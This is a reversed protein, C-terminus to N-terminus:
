SNKMGLVSVIVNTADGCTRFSIYSSTVNTPGISNSSSQGMSTSLISPMLVQDFIIPFTYTVETNGKVAVFTKTQILLNGFIMVLTGDQLSSMSVGLKSQIEEWGYTDAAYTCFYRRDNTIDQYEQGVKGVTATTPAGNGKIIGYVDNGNVQANNVTLTHTDKKYINDDGFQVSNAINNTGQGIQTSNDAETRGNNGLVQTNIGNSSTYHGILTSQAYDKTGDENERDGPGEARSGYVINGTGNGKANPGIVIDFKDNTTSVAGGAYYNSNEDVGNGLGAIDGDVLLTGSKSPFSVNVQTKSAGQGKEIVIEDAGIKTVQDDTTSTFQAISDNLHVDNNHESVANFDTEANFNNKDTFINAENLYAVQEGLDNISKNLKTFIEDIASQVENSDIKSTANSYTIGSASASIAVSVTEGSTLTFVLSHTDDDYEVNSIGSSQQRAIKKCQATIFTIVKSTTLESM